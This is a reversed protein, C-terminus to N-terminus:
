GMKTYSTLSSSPTSTILFTAQCKSDDSLSKVFIWSAKWFKSKMQTFSDRRLIPKQPISNKLLSAPFLILRPNVKCQFTKQCAQGLAWSSAELRSKMKMRYQIASQTSKGTLKKIPFGTGSQIWRWEKCSITYRYSRLSGTIGSLRFRKKSFNRLIMLNLLGEM